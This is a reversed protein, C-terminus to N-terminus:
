QQPYNNYNSQINTNKRRSKLLLQGVLIGASAILLPILIYLLSSLPKPTNALRYEYSSIVDSGGILEQTSNLYVANRIYVSLPVRNPNPLIVFSSFIEGWFWAFSFAFGSIILSFHKKVGSIDKSIFTFVLVLVPIISMNMMVVGLYSNFL